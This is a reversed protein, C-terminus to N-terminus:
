CGRSAQGPHLRKGWRQTIEEALAPLTWDTRGHRALDPGALVIEVLAAEDVQDLVPRRHGKPRDV